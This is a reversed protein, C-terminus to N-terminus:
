ELLGLDTLRNEIVTLAQEADDLQKGGTIVLKGSGFLLAVVDPDDLRYVLGPFQEPEYEIHELGLGIAIANLNLTHDLDGSSVINQIEIDPSTAVDVGLERLEDFVYELATTVDDVSKAGTCVVKGSRFILAAAKPDHMRYVLGPFNDPDYDTAGLDESLTELDLEQGIDSSAVVNEVQISEATVSM